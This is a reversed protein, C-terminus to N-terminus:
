GYVVFKAPSPFSNGLEVKKWPTPAQLYGDENEDQRDHKTATPLSTLQGPNSRQYAHLCYVYMNIRAPHHSM